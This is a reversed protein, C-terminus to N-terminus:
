LEERNREKMKFSIVWVYPNKEWGYGRKENISNWLDRFRPIFKSDPNVTPFLIDDTWIGEKKVENSSIGQVREVRINTIELTIRSYKRPMYISPIWKVQKLEKDARYSVRYKEAKYKKNGFYPHHFTERVWLKDYTKGYPCKWEKECFTYTWFNSNGLRSLVARPQPKVIRRTQTKRGELIARVMEGKFLIGTYKM